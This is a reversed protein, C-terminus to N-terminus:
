RERVKREETDDGQCKLLRDSFIKLHKNTKQISQRVLDYQNLKTQNAQNQRVRKM